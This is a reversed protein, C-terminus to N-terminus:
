LAMSILLAHYLFQCSNATWLILISYLFLSLYLPSCLVIHYLQCANLWCINISGYTIYVHLVWFKPRLHLKFEGAPFFFVIFLIYLVATDDTRYLFTLCSLSIPTSLITIKFQTTMDSFTVSWRLGLPSTLPWTPVQLFLLRPNRLRPLISLKPSIM